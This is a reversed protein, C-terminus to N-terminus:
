KGNAFRSYMERSSCFKSILYSINTALIVMVITSPLIGFGFMKGQLRLRDRFILDFFKSKQCSLSKYQVGIKFYLTLDNHM